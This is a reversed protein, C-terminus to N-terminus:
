VWHFFCVGIILFDITHEALPFIILHAINNKIKITLTVEVNYSVGFVYIIYM